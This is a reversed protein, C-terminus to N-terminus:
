INTHRQATENVALFILPMCDPLKKFVKKTLRSLKYESLRLLSHYALAVMVDAVRFSITRAPLPMPDGFHLM